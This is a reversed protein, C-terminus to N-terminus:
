LQAPISLKGRRSLGTLAIKKDASISLVATDMDGILERTVRTMPVFSLGTVFIGHVDKM